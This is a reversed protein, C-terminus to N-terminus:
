KLYKSALKDECFILQNIINLYSRSLILMYLKDGMINIINEMLLDEDDDSKITKM